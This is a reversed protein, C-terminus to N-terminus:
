CDYSHEVWMKHVFGVLLHVFVVFGYAKTVYCCPM